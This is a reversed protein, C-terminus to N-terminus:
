KTELNYSSIINGQIQAVYVKKKLIKVCNSPNVSSFPELGKIQIMIQLQVPGKNSM